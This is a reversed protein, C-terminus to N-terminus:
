PVTQIRNELIEATKADGAVAPLDATLRARVAGVKRAIVVNARAFTYKKVVSACLGLSTLSPM